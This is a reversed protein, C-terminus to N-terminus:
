IVKKALLKQVDVELPSAMYGNSPMSNPNPYYKENKIQNNKHLEPPNDKYEFNSQNKEVDFGEFFYTIPVNLANALFFLKASSVANVANEYKQIQQFTIHIKEAIQTQTKRLEIRKKRLRRGIHQNINAESPIKGKSM